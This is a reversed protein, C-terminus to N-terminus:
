RLRDYVFQVCNDEDTFNLCFEKAKPANIFIENILKKQYDESARNKTLARHCTPCLKVLNDIQDLTRDVSFSIVHHIELYWRNSNRYKFTRNEIMYENKCGVCEDNFFNRVYQVIGQNRIIKEDISNNYSFGLDKRLREIEMSTNSQKLVKDKYFILREIFTKSEQALNKNLILKDNCILINAKFKNVSLLKQAVSDYFYRLNIRLQTNRENEGSIFQEQLERFNLNLQRLDTINTLLKFLNDLYKSDVIQRPLDLSYFNLKFDPSGRLAFFSIIILNSFDDDTINEKVRKIQINKYILDFFKECSLDTKVFFQHKNRILEFDLGTFKSLLENNEEYINTNLEIPSYVSKKYFSEIVFGKIPKSCPKANAFIVLLAPLSFNEMQELVIM